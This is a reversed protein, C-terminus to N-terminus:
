HMHFVLNYKALIFLFSLRWIPKFFVDMPMRVQNTRSQLKQWNTELKVIQSKNLFNMLIQWLVFRLNLIKWIKSM